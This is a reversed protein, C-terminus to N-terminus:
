QRAQRAPATRIRYEATAPAKRPRRVRTIKAIPQGAITPAPEETPQEDSIAPPEVDPVAPPHFEPGLRM